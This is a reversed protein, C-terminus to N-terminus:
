RFRLAPDEVTGADKARRQCTSPSNPACREDLVAGVGELSICDQRASGDRRTRDHPLSEADAYGFAAGRDHVASIGILRAAEVQAV